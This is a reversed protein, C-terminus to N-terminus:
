NKNLIKSKLAITDLQKQEKAAGEAFKKAQIPKMKLEQVAWKYNEKVDIDYAIDSISQLIDTLDM